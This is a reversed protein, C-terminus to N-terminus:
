YHKATGKIKIYGDKNDIDFYDGKDVEGTKKCPVCDEKVKKSTPEWNGDNNLRWISRPIEGLGDCKACKAKDAM